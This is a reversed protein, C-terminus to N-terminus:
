PKGMGMMQRLLLLFVDDIQVHGPSITSIESAREEESKKKRMKINLIERERGESWM